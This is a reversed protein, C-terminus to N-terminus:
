EVWANEFINGRFSSFILMRKYIETNHFLTKPVKDEHEHDGYTACASFKWTTRLHTSNNRRKGIKNNYILTKAQILM